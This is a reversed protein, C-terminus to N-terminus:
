RVSKWSAKLAEYIRNGLLRRLLVKWFLPWAGVSPRRVLLRLLPISRDNEMLKTLEYFDDARIKYLIKKLLNFKDNAEAIAVRYLEPKADQNTMTKNLGHYRFKVWQTDISIIKPRQWLVRLFM